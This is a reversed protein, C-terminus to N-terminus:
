QKGVGVGDATEWGASRRHCCGRQGACIFLTGSGWGYYAAGLNEVGKVGGQSTGNRTMWYPPSYSVAEFLNAGLSQATKAVLRQNADANWDYAGAAPEYGPVAHPPLTICAFHGSKGCLPDDGGAINYRIYNLGLGASPSFLANM